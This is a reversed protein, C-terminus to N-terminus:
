EWNRNLMSPKDGPWEWNKSTALQLEEEGSMYIAFLVSLAYIYIFQMPAAKMPNLGHLIVCM